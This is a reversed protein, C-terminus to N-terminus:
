LTGYLRDGFDGLGPLIYKKANLARDLAARIRTEAESPRGLQLLAVTTIWVFAALYGATAPGRDTLVSAFMLFYAIMILVLQDRQNQTELFKLAVMRKLKCDEAKYVAGMGGEGLKDLIQYHGITRGIM